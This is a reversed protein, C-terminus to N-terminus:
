VPVFTVRTPDAVSIFDSRDSNMKLETFAHFSIYPSLYSSVGTQTRGLRMYIGGLEALEYISKQNAIKVKRKSSPSYIDVKSKINQSKTRPWQRGGYCTTLSAFFATLTATFFNFNGQTFNRFQRSYISIATLLNFNGHVFQFQWSCISIATLLISIPALLIFKGHFFQFQRSCIGPAPPSGYSLHPSAGRRVPLLTFKLNQDRKPHELCFVM